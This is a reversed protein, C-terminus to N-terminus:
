HQGASANERISGMVSVGQADPIEFYGLSQEKPGAPRMRIGRHFVPTEPPRKEWNSPQQFYFVTSDDPVPLVVRRTIPDRIAIIALSKKGKGARTISLVRFAETYGLARIRALVESKATQVDNDSEFGLTHPSAELQATSKDSPTVVAVTLQQNHTVANFAPETLFTAAVCVIAITLMASPQKGRATALM